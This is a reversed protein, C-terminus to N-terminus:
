GLAWLNVGSTATSTAAISVQSVAVRDPFTGTWRSHPSCTAILVDQTSAVGTSGFKVWLSVGGINEVTLVRAPFGFQYNAGSSATVIAATSTTNFVRPYQNVPM